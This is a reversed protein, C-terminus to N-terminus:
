GLFVMTGLGPRKSCQPIKIFWNEVLTANVGVLSWMGVKILFVVDFEFGRAPAWSNKLRMELDHGFLFSEMYINVSKIEDKTKNRGSIISNGKGRTTKQTKKTTQQRNGGIPHRWKIKKGCQFRMAGCTEFPHPLNHSAIPLNLWVHVLPSVHPRFDKGLDNPHFYKFHKTYIKSSCSSPPKLGNHFINTLHSCKGLFTQFWWGSLCSECKVTNKEPCVRSLSSIRLSPWSSDRNGPTCRTCWITGRSFVPGLLYCIADCFCSCITEYSLRVLLVVVIKIRCYSDCPQKRYQKEWLGSQDTGDTGRLADKGDNFRKLNNPATPPWFSWM